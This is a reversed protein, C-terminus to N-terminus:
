TLVTRSHLIFIVTALTASFIEFYSPLQLHRSFM